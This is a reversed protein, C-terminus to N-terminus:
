LSKCSYEECFRVLAVPSEPTSWSPIATELMINYIKTNMVLDERGPISTRNPVNAVAFKVNGRVAARAEDILEKVNALTEVPGGVWWAIDNFGLEILLMDPQYKAVQEAVLEKAQRAQRGWVSFHNCGSQDSLLFDPSVGRAYGGEVVAVVATETEPQSEELEKTIGPGHELPPPRLRPPGEPPKEPPVTGWYPGVFAAPVCERRFWQWIRYRWTWDGEHGHSISDGVIMIKM